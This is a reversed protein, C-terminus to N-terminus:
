LELRVLGINSASLSSPFLTRSYQLFRIEVQRCLPPFSPEGTSQYSILKLSAQTGEKGKSAKNNHVRFSLLVGDCFLVSFMAPPTYQDNLELHCAVM